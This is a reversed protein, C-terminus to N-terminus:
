RDYLAALEAPPEWPDAQEDRENRYKAIGELWNRTIEDDPWVPEAPLTRHPLSVKLIVVEVDQRVRDELQSQVNQLAEERTAGVAYLQFPERVTARFANGSMPQLLVAIEM